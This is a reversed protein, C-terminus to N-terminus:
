FGHLRSITERTLNFKGELRRMRRVELLVRGPFDRCKLELSSHLFVPFSPFM